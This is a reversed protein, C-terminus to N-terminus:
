DGNKVYHWKKNIKIRRLEKGLFSRRIKEDIIGRDYFIGIEELKKKLFSIPQPENFFGEKILEDIKKALPSRINNGNKSKGRGSKRKLGFMDDINSFTNGSNDIIASVLKESAKIGNLTIEFFNKSKERFTKVYIFKPELERLFANLNPLEGFGRSKMNQIIQQSSIKRENNIMYNGYLSLFVFQIQQWKSNNEFNCVIEYNGDSIRYVSELEEKSISLKDSNNIVFNESSPVSSPKKKVNEENTGSKNNKKILDELITRFAEIKLKPDSIGAVSNEAIKVLEEYSNKNEM